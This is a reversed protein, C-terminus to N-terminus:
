GLCLWSDMMQDIQEMQDNTLEGMRNLFRVPPLPALGQVNFAGTQLFPVTQRTAFLTDM